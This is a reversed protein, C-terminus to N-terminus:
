RILEVPTLIPQLSLRCIALYARRTLALDTTLYNYSGIVYVVTRQDAYRVELFDGVAQALRGVPNVLAFSGREDSVETGYWGVTFNGLPTAAGAFQAQADVLAQRGAIIAPEAPLM